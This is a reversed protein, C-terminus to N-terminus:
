AAADIGITRITDAGARLKCSDLLPRRIRVAYRKM